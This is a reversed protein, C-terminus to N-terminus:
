WAGRLRSSAIVRGSVGRCVGGLWALIARRGMGVLYYRRWREPSATRAM